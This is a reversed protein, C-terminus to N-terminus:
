LMMRALVAAGAKLSCAPFEPDAGMVKISPDTVALHKVKM